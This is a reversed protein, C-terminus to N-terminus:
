LGPSCVSSNSTLARSLRHSGTNFFTSWPVSRFRVASALDCSHARGRRFAAIRPDAAATTMSRLDVDANCRVLNVITTKRGSRLQELHVVCGPSIFDCESAGDSLTCM